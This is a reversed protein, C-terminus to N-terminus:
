MCCFCFRNIQWYAGWKLKANTANAGQLASKKEVMSM